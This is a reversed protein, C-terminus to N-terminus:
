AGLLLADEVRWALRVTDGTAPPQVGGLNQQSFSPALAKAAIRWLTVSAM